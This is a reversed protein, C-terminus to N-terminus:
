KREYYGRKVLEDTVADDPLETELLPIYKFSGDSCFLEESDLKRHLYYHINRRSFSDNIYVPILEKYLQRMESRYNKACFDQLEEKKMKKDYPLGLKKLNAKLINVNSWEFMVAEDETARLIIGSDLLPKISNVEAVPFFRNSASTTSAIKLLYFQAESPLSEIIDVTEELSFRESRVTPIDIKSSSYDMNIVGLEMALRYIHKCPLKSRIFDGCPCHDLWTEYRGHSGQFYGYLDDSDIKIPTLKSSQASKMRKRAYDTAHVEDAWSTKWLELARENM